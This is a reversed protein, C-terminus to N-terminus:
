DGPRGSRGPHTGGCCALAPGLASRAAVALTRPSAKPIAPRCTKWLYASTTGDRTREPEIAHTDPYRSPSHTPLTHISVGRLRHSPHDLKQTAGSLENPRRDLDVTGPRRTLHEPQCRDPQPRPASGAEPRLEPRRAPAPRPHVPHDGVTQQAAAAARSWGPLRSRAARGTLAPPRGKHSAFVLSPSMTKPPATVAAADTPSTRVTAGAECQCAGTSAPNRSARATPV